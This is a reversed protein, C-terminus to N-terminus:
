LFSRVAANVDAFHEFRSSLETLELVERLIENAGCIKLAQGVSALQDTIDVLTELGRSDVYAVASADLVLRGMSSSRLEQMRGRLEDVDPHILAGVPKVVAVAGHKRELIEM